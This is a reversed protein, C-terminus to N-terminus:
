FAEELYPEVDNLLKKHRAISKFRNPVILNMEVLDDLIISLEDNYLSLKKKIVEVYLDLWAKEPIAWTSTLKEAYERIVIVKKVNLLETITKLEIQDPEHLVTFDDHAYEMIIDRLEIGAGNTTQINYIMTNYANHLFPSLTSLGTFQFSQSFKEKLTDHLDILKESLSYNPLPVQKEERLQVKKDERPSWNTVFTNWAENREKLFDKFKSPNKMIIEAEIKILGILFLPNKFAKFVSSNRNIEIKYFNDKEFISYLSSGDDRFVVDTKGLKNKIPFTDAKKLLTKANAASIRADIPIEPLTNTFELIRSIESIRVKRTLSSRLVEIVTSDNKFANVSENYELSDELFGTKHFNVPVHDLHIEGIIKAVEPHLRIGFKDFAKILREKRYLHIGYDGKISRKELLGIWGVLRNKRSLPIDINRKSGKEINPIVPKCERSNIRLLINRSKLYPGYRIGFSKKFSTIQNPYLSINLKSIIIITGNWTNEKKIKEVEFNTWDLSKDKLWKEEDYEASFEVDSNKKTTLIRFNKGLTSCASKMGLGFHGLKEGEKKTEKAITLANKLETLDMGSGNDTITITGRDFDLRVDIRETKGTIRADISNDILESIAQETRYGTLGLKKILSKDPTIDIKEM